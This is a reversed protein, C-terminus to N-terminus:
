ISPPLLAYGHASLYNIKTKGSKKLYQIAFLFLPKLTDDLVICEPQRSNLDIFSAEFPTNSYSRVTLASTHQKNTFEFVDYEYYWDYMGQANPASADVHHSINIAIKANFTAPNLM